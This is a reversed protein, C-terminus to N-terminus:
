MNFLSELSKKEEETTLKEKLLSIFKSNIKKIKEFSEKIVSVIESIIDKEVKMKEVISVLGDVAAIIRWQESCRNIEDNCFSVLIEASIAESSNIELWVFNSIFSDWYYYLGGIERNSTINKDMLDMMQNFYPKIIDFLEKEKRAMVSLKSFIGLFSIHVM